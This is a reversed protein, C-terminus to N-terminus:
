GLRISPLKRSSYESRQFALHGAAVRNTNVKLQFDSLAFFDLSKLAEIDRPDDMLPFRGPASRSSSGLSSYGSSKIVFDLLHKLKGIESLVHHWTGPNLKVEVFKIHKMSENSRRVFALITDSTM